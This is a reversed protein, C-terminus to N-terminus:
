SAADPPYKELLSLLHYEYSATLLWYTCHGSDPAAFALRSYSLIYASGKFAPWCFSIHLHMLKCTVTEVVADHSLSGAKMVQLIVVTSKTFPIVVTAMQIRDSSRNSYSM